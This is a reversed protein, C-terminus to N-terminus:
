TVLHKKTFENWQWFNADEAIRVAIEHQLQYTKNISRYIEMALIDMHTVAYLRCRHAAKFVNYHVILSCKENMHSAHQRQTSVASKNVDTSWLLYLVYVYM